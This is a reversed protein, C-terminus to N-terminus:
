LKLNQNNFISFCHDVKKCKKWLPIKKGKKHVNDLVAEDAAKWINILLSNSYSKAQRDPNSGVHELVSYLHGHDLRGM